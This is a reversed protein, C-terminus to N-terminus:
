GPVNFCHPLSAQPFTLPSLYMSCPYLFFSIINNSQSAFPRLHPWLLTFLLVFTGWNAASQFQLTHPETEGATQYVTVYHSRGFKKCGIFGYCPSGTFVSAHGQCLCSNTQSRDTTEFAWMRSVQLKKQPSFCLFSPPGTVSCHSHRSWTEFSQM